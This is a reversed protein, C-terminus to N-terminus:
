RRRLATGARVLAWLILLVAAMTMSLMGLPSSLFTTFLTYIRLPAPRPGRDIEPLDSGPSSVTVSAGSTLESITLDHNPGIDLEFQGIGFISFTPNFDYTGNQGFVTLLADGLWRSDLVREALMSDDDTDQDGAASQTATGDQKKGPSKRAVTRLAERLTPGEGDDVTDSGSTGAEQRDAGQGQPAGGNGGGEGGPPLSHEQPGLSLATGLDAVGLAGGGLTSGAITSGSHEADGPLGNPRPTRVAAISQLLDSLASSERALRELGPLDADYVDMGLVDGGLTALPDFNDADDDGLGAAAIGDGGDFSGVVRATDYLLIPMARSVPAMAISAALATLPAWFKM